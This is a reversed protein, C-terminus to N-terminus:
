YIDLMTDKIHLGRVMNTPIRIIVGTPDNPNPLVTLENQRAAVNQMIEAKELEFCKVLALTRLYKRVAVTNKQRAQANLLRRMVIRVYAITLPANADLMLDDAEGNPKQQYTTIARVIKPLGDAGTAVVAVGHRLAAEIRTGSLTHTSDVPDLAPLAIDNFPVAVDSGSALAAAISASLEPLQTTGHYCVAIFRYSSKAEAYASFTSAADIDAFPVIVIADHQEVQGSVLDLHNKWAAADLQTTIPAALAIITHGLPVITDLTDQLAM